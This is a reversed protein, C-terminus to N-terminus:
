ILYRGTLSIVDFAIGIPCTSPPTFESALDTASICTPQAVTVADKGDDETALQSTNLAGIQVLWQEDIDGALAVCVWLVLFLRAFLRVSLDLLM